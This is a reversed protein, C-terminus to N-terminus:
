EEHTEARPAAPETVWPPQRVPAVGSSVLVWAPGAPSKLKVIGGLKGGLPVKTSTWMTLRQGDAAVEIREAKFEGAPVKLKESGKRELSASQPKADDDDQEGPLEMARERMRVIVRERIPQGNPGRRALAWMEVREPGVGATLVIWRRTKEKPQDWNMVELRLSMAPTGEHAEVLYETYTGEKADFVSLQSLLEGGPLPAAALSSALLTLLLPSGMM